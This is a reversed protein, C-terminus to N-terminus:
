CFPRAGLHPTLALSSPLSRDSAASPYLLIAVPFRHLGRVSSSLDDIQPGASDYDVMGETQSDGHAQGAFVPTQYFSGGEFDDTRPPQQTAPKWNVLETAKELM